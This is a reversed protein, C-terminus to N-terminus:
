AADVAALYSIVEPSTTLRLQRCAELVAPRRWHPIAANNKWEWVTAHPSRINRAIAAVRGRPGLLETVPDMHSM